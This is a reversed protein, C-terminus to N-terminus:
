DKPKYLLYKKNGYYLMLGKQSIKYSNVKNLSEIYLEGDFLENIETMAWSKVELSNGDLSYTGTAQNTSTVGNLVGGEEFTLTYTNGEFPEAFKIAEHKEDVFGILKWKTSVLPLSEYDPNETIEADALPIWDDSLNSLNTNESCSLNCLTFATVLLATNFTLTRM